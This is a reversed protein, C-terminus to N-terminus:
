HLIIYKKKREKDKKRFKIIFCFSDHAIRILDPLVKPIVTHYRLHLKNPENILNLCIYKKLKTLFCLKIAELNQAWNFCSFALGDYVYVTKLNVIKYEFLLLNSSFANYIKYSM